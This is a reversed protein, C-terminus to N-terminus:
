QWFGKNEPAPEEVDAKADNLEAKRRAIQSEIAKIKQAVEPTCEAAYLATRMERLKDLSITDNPHAM